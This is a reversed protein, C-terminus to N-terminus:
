EAEIAALSPSVLRECAPRAHPERTVATLARFDGRRQNLLIMWSCPSSPVVDKLHKWGDELITRDGSSPLAIVQPRTM